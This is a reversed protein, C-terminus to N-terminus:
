APVALLVSAGASRSPQSTSGRAAPPAPGHGGGLGAPSRRRELLEREGLQDSRRREVAVHPPHALAVAAAAVRQQVREAASGARPEGRPQVQHELDVVLAAASATAAALLQDGDVRSAGTSARSPRARAPADAVGGRGLVSVRLRQGRERSGDTSCACPTRPSSATRPRRTAPACRTPSRRAPGRRVRRRRADAQHVRRPRLRDRRPRRARIADIHRDLVDLSEALTKTDTRRLGDNIQHQAFILGIVGGRAAIRAITATASTTSRARRLPLGRALRDGPLGRTPAPRATSREILAFTADIADDRMHSIDVLVGARTCRRAGGGRRARDPGRAGDQPFLVNYVADPLFPLAPTNTAVRRWFLHALTIYLVGRGALERM